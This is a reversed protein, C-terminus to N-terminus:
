SRKDKKFVLEVKFLDGDILIKMTGGQVTTFSKAIALGLGSGSSNRSKDGQVFREVLEDESLQIEQESINKFSIHVTDDQEVVDIYVRTNALAYKYINMFLNEFIRYTKNSDLHIDIKDSSTTIRFELQKSQNSDMCEFNVQRLLSVVDIKEIDLHINGSNAKSVEFLDDILNKLRMANRDLTQIYEATQQDSTNDNKLLDIYTIITTLPTKLDHSVNSVLETKMRQSKVEENVAKEFGDKINSFENGLSNFIGLNQDIEIDFNGDSLKKTSNLLIMYDQKITSFKKRLFYFLAISYLTIFVLVLLFSNSVLGIMSLISIIIFHFAVFRLIAKNQSDSFDFKTIKDLLEMLKNIMWAVLTREKFYQFGKMIIYKLIFVIYAVFQFILMWMIISIIGEIIPSGKNVGVEMISDMLRGSNTVATIEPAILVSLCTAIISVIFAIEFKVKKLSKYPNCEKIIAMPYFMIFLIIVLVCLSVYPFLYSTYVEARNNYGYMHFDSLTYTRPIAYVFTMNKPNELTLTRIESNTNEDYLTAGLVYYKQAELEELLYKEDAFNDYDDYDGSAKAEGQQDYDVRLYYYYNEKIRDVDQKKGLAKDNTFITGKTHDIAYYRLPEGELESLSHGQFQEIQQLDVNINKTKVEKVLSKLDTGQESLLHSTLMLEYRPLLECKQYIYDRLSEDDKGDREKMADYNIVMFCSLVLLLLVSSVKCIRKKNM